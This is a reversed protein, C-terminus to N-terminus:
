RYGFASLEHSMRKGLGNRIWTKMNGSWCSNGTGYLSYMAYYTNSGDADSRRPLKSLQWDCYSRAQILMRMGTRFCRVLHEEDAGLLSAPSANGDPAFQPISAPLIQMLCAEGAPGRGQGGADDDPKQRGLRSGAKGRGVEVDERLGSEAIALGLSKAVLLRVTWGKAKSNPICGSIPAGGSDMCLEREAAEIDAAVITNYRDTGENATEKHIYSGYFSSWSAGSKSSEPSRDRALFSIREPARLGSGPPTRAQVGLGTEPTVSFKTNGPPGAVM